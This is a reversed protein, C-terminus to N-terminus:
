RWQRRAPDGCDGAASPFGRCVCSRCIHQAPPVADRPRVVGLVRESGRPGAAGAQPMLEERGLTPRVPYNAGGEPMTSVVLLRHGGPALRVTAVPLVGGAPVRPVDVIRDDIRFM